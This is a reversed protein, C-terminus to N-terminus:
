FGGTAADLTAVALRYRVQADDFANRAEILTKQADVVELVTSEGAQYRLTVLRLSETALDSANRALDVLSRAAVAENYSQYLNGVLQRQAQSLETRAQEQKFEAQRIKSRSNGWDFVPVSLTVTFSYGLNPLIGADPEAAVTSHLKFANAEIGYNGEFNLSPIRLNQAKRVDFSAQSVAANAAKLTPNEREAMARLEEFSPLVRSSELDDVVTFNEDLTGSTLVALGLRTDEVEFTTAQFHQRQQQLQIEAKVVDSRAAEGAREQQQTIDFFRQAQQVAQQATAYHRQAVVLAYYHDAVTIALGRRAVEVKAEALAEAASARKYDSKLFTNASLEQRVTAVARYLHVGDNTVFRGSPITGNGQTGTYQTTQDVSPRLASKAQVRDERALASETSASRITVDLAKAKDIADQLTILAPPAAAGAPRAFPPPPVVQPAQALASAALFGTWFVALFAKM